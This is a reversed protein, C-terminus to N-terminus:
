SRNAFSGVLILVGAVGELIAGVICLAFAWSLYSRNYGRSAYIIAGVIITGCAVFCTLANLITVIKKNRLSQLVLSLFLIAAAIGIAILGITEFFQTARLWDEVDDRDLVDNCFTTFLVFQCERWLGSNRRGNHSWNPCFFGVIHFVFAILHLLLCVKQYITSTQLADVVPLFNM